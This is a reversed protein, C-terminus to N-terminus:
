RTLKNIKELSSSALDYNIVKELELSSILEVIEPYINKLKRLLISIVKAYQLYMESPNFNDGYTIFEGSLDCLEIDTGKYLINLTPQKGSIQKALDLHSIKNDDLEKIAKLINSLIKLLTSIDKLEIDTLDKYDLLNNLIVGCIIEQGKNNITVIGKDFTTLQIDKQKEQLYEIQEKEVFPTQSWRYHDRVVSNAFCINNVQLHKYLEKQLKIVRSGNAFVASTFGSDSILTGEDIYKKLDEPNFNLIEM